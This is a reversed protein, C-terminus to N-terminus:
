EKTEKTQPKRFYFYMVLGVASTFTGMIYTILPNDLAVTVLEPSNLSKYIAYILTSTMSIAIFNRTTLKKLLEGM